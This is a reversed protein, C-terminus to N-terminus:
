SLFSSVVFVVIIESGEIPIPPVEGVVVIPGTSFAKVFFDLKRTFLRISSEISYSTSLLDSTSIEFLSITIFNPKVQVIPQSASSFSLLSFTLFVLAFSELDTSSSTTSSATIRPSNSPFIVTCAEPKSGM